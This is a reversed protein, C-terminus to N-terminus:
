ELCPAVPTDLSYLFAEEPMPRAFLYGQAIHCGETLLFDRQIETEVGEATVALQLSKALSIVARTIAIDNEDEPIDQVFSRDIKLRDIPLRKLYSLSSYGTGFDDIAISVGYDRLRRLSQAALEFEGLFLGETVELELYAPDYGTENILAIVKDAYDPQQLEVASANISLVECHYGRDCWNKARMMATRLIWEGLPVILGLEEAAPIFKMPGLLGMDPHQWRVLVEAGHIKGSQMNIQPQYYLVFEQRDLGHRISSELLVREFAVSTLEQTYFAYGCRGADKAKYMAADANRMLEESTFGDQPYVSIGISPTIYLQHEGFEFEAKFACLIKEAINVVDHTSEIGELLITFEDGGTRAVTDDARVSHILRSGVEKLLSDGVTHGHSDNINKFRDLDMFLLAMQGGHRAAHNIAHQLRANFLLRNPLETLPDHHALFDLQKESQKIHSIDAFVAVYNTLKGAKNKVANITLWEPFITGDKRRNWIEGCWMGTHILSSWMTQYFARDHRGSKWLNPKEGLVEDRGFGLIDSFARNVDLINAEADAILVGESTADFVTGALQLRKLQKKIEQHSRDLESRTEVQETVDNVAAVVGTIRGSIDYLPIYDGAIHCSPGGEKGPLTDEFSVREGLLVQDVLKLHRDVLEPPLVDAITKGEIESVSLGFTTEYFQNALLYRYERDCAAIWMPAADIVSRLLARNEELQEKTLLRQTVDEFVAVVEGTPLRYVYNEVWLDLTGDQYHKQPFHEPKGTQFVRKLVPLLGMSEIGPFIEKVSHGIIDNRSINGIREASRNFDSLIFDGTVDDVSYIAVGDSMNDFLERYREESTKVQQAILRQETIDRGVGRYGLFNKNQDFLARGSLSIIREDGDPRRWTVVFNQFDAKRELINFHAAWEPDNSDAQDGYFEQRTKGMIEKIPVGIVSEVQGSLYTCELDPGMEWFWDAAIGAFDRFRQESAALRIASSVEQSNRNAVSEMLLALLQMGNNLAAHLERPLRELDGEIVAFQSYRKHATRVEICTDSFPGVVSLPKLTIGLGMGNVGEVFLRAMQETDNLSSLHTLLLLLDHATNQRPSNSSNPPM